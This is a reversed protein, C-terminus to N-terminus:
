SASVCEKIPLQTTFQKIKIDLEDWELGSESEALLGAGSFLELSSDILMGSRIAVVYCSRKPSYAGVIGSFLGRKFPEHERIFKIAKEKPFGAIAPTPHLLQLIDYDKMIPKLVGSFHQYIHHLHPLDLVKIAGAKVGPMCCAELCDQVWEGVVEHERSEKKSSRLEEKISEDETLSVSRQRTGAIAECQIDLGDRLFLLEPSKGFFTCHPKLSFLFMNSLRHESNFLLTLPNLKGELAYTKKRAMVVKSIHNEEMKERAVSVIHDWKEYTPNPYHEVASIVTSPTEEYAQFLHELTSSLTELSRKYGNFEEYQLNVMLTVKDSDQIWEMLPLFYFVAPFESILKLEDFQIGGFYSFSSSESDLLRKTEGDFRKSDHISRDMKRYISPLMVTSQGTFLSACGIGFVTSDHRSEKWVLSLQDFNGLKSMDISPSVPFKVRILSKCTRPLNAVIANLNDFLLTTDVSHRM